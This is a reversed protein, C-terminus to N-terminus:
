YRFSVFRNLFLLSCCRQVRMARQFAYDLFAVAGFRRFMAFRMRLICHCSVSDCHVVINYQSCERLLVARWCATHVSGSWFVFVALSQMCARVSAYVTGCAWVWRSALVTCTFRYCLTHFAIM